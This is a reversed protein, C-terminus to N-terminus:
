DYGIETLDDESMGFHHGVEHLITLRIQRRLEDDDHGAISQALEMIGLRFISIKDPLDGSSSISRENIPVGTYLGCLEGPHDLDMERLMAPSPQDDVILPVTDILELVSPPLEAIVEELLKDFHNRRKDNM